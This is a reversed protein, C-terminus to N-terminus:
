ADLLSSDDPKPVDIINLSIYDARVVTYKWVAIIAAIVLMLVLFDSQYAAVLYWIGFYVAVVGLYIQQLRDGDIAYILGSLVQWVGVVILLLMALCLILYAAQSILLGVTGCVIMAGIAWALATQVKYDTKIWWNHVKM